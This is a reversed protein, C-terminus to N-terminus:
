LGGQSPAVMRDMGFAVEFVKCPKFGPVVPFDTRRSTSAVERWEHTPRQSRGYAQVDRSAADAWAAVPADADQWHGAPEAITYGACFLCLLTALIPRLPLKGSSMGSWLTLLAGMKIPVVVAIVHKLSCTGNLDTL